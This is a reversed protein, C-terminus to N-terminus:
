WIPHVAAAERLYMLDAREGPRLSAEVARDADAETTPWSIVSIRM